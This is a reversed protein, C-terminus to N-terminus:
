FDDQEDFEQVCYRKIESCLSVIENQDRQNEKSELLMSSYKWPIWTFNFALNYELRWVNEWWLPNWIFNWGWPTNEKIQLLFFKMKKCLQPIKINKLRLMTILMGRPDGAVTNNATYEDVADIHNYWGQPKLLTKGLIGRRSRVLFVNRAYLNGIRNIRFRFSRQSTGSSSMKM